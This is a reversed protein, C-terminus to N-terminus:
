VQQIYLMIFISLIANNNNDINNINIDNNNNNNNNNYSYSLFKESEFKESDHFNM